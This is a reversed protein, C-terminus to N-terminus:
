SWNDPRFGGNSLWEDLSQVLETLEDLTELPDMELTGWEEWKDCITKIRALTANPDMMDGKTTEDMNGAHSSLDLSKRSKGHHTTIRRLHNIVIITM